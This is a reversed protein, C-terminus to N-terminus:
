LANDSEEVLPATGKCDPCPVAQPIPGWWTVDEGRQRDHIWKDMIRIVWGPKGSNACTECRM